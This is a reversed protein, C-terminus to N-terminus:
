RIALKLHSMGCELRRLFSLFKALEGSIESGRGNKECNNRLLIKFKPRAGYCGRSWIYDSWVCVCFRLAFCSEQFHVSHVRTIFFCIEKYTAGKYIFGGGCNRNTAQLTATLLIEKEWACCVRVVYGWTEGSITAPTIDSSGARWSSHVVWNLFSRETSFLGGMSWTSAWWPNSARKTCNSELQSWWSWTSAAQTSVFMVEPEDSCVICTMSLPATATKTSSRPEGFAWSSTFSCTIFM